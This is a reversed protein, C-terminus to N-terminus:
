GAALRWRGARLAPAALEWALLALIPVTLFLALFLHRHWEDFGANFRAWVYAPYYALGLTTAAFLWALTARRPRLAVVAVIPVLYWPYLNTMLLAFLLMTDVAADALPRGRLVAVTLGLALLVFLAASVNRVIEARESPSLWVPACRAGVAPLVVPEDAFPSDCDTAAAASAVALVSPLPHRRSWQQALSLPSVHDMKQSMATGKALGSVMQGDAWWPVTVAVGVAAALAATTAIRWGWRERVAAALFLPALAASFFKVLASLVLAPGALASRNAAAVLAAVLFATMLVDNHANGVGEFLVLPSAAFLYVASWGAQGGGHHRFLIAAVAWVLLLNVVKVAVLLRTVDSFGAVLAPVASAALWAPGYFLPVNLLFAPLAFPDGRHDAFTALYPNQGYFWTLKMEVLYDFVDLAGVPYLLLNAAAPGAAALVVALKATRSPATRARRLLWWGLAHLVGILVFLILTGRLIPSDFRGPVMEFAFHTRDRNDPLAYWRQVPLWALCALVSTVLLALDQRRRAPPPAHREATVSPSDPM